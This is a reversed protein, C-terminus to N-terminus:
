CPTSAIYSPSAKNVPLLWTRANCCDSPVTSASVKLCLTGTTSASLAQAHMQAATATLRRMWLVAKNEQAVFEKLATSSEM